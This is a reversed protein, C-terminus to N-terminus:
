AKGYCKSSLEPVRVQFSVCVPSQRLCASGSTELWSFTRGVDTKQCPADEVASRDKSHRNESDKKSVRCM